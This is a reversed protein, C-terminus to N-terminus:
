QVWVRKGQVAIAEEERSIEREGGLKVMKEGDFGECRSGLGGVGKGLLAMEDWKEELGAGILARRLKGTRPASPDPSVLGGSRLTRTLDEAEESLLGVVVATIRGVTLESVIKARNRQILEQNM